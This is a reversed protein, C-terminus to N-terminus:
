PNKLGCTSTLQDKASDYRGNDPPSPGAICSRNQPYADCHVRVPKALAPSATRSVDGLCPKRLTCAGSGAPAGRGLANGCVLVGPGASMSRAQFPESNTATQVVYLPPGIRAIRRSARPLASSETGISIAASPELRYECGEIATVSSPTIMAYVRAARSFPPAGRANM